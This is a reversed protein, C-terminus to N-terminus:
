IALSATKQVASSEDVLLRRRCRFQLRRRACRIWRARLSPAEKPTEVDNLVTARFSFSRRTFNMTIPASVGCCEKLARNSATRQGERCYRRHEGCCGVLDGARRQVNRALPSRDAFREGTRWSRSPTLRRVDPDVDYDPSRTSRRWVESPMVRRTDCYMEQDRPRVPKSRDCHGRDSWQETRRAPRMSRHPPRLQVRLM